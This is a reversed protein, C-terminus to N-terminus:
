SNEKIKMSKRSKKVNEQKLSVLLLTLEYCIIDTNKVKLM